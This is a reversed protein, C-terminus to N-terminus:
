LLFFFLVFRFRVSIQFLRVSVSGRTRFRPYGINRNVAAARTNLYSKEWQDFVKQIVSFNIFYINNRRFCIRYSSAKISSELEQFLAEKREMMLGRCLAVFDLEHRLARVIERLLARVARLYDERFWFFYYLDIIIIFLFNCSRIM